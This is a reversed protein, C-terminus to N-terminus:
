DSLSIGAGLVKDRGGKVGGGGTEGRRRSCREGRGPFKINGMGGLM